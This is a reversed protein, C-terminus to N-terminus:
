LTVECLIKVLMSKLEPFDITVTDYIRRMDLTYYKHAIVDRAGAIQKWSVQPYEKRTEDGINKILEGINIVTMAMARKLLENDLFEEMSCNGLLNEGVNIESIIKKIVIIDRRQM